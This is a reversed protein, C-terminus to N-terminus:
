VFRRHPTEIVKTSIDFGRTSVYNYVHAYAYMDYIWDSTMGDVSSLQRLRRIQRLWIRLFRIETGSSSEYLSCPVAWIKVLHRFTKHSRIETQRQQLANIFCYALVVSERAIIKHTRSDRMWPLTNASMLENIYATNLYEVHESRALLTPIALLRLTPM